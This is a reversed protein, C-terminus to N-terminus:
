SSNQGLRDAVFQEIQLVSFRVSPGIRIPVLQETWILQYISSRSLALADAAQAVTILLPRESTATQTPESPNTPATTM